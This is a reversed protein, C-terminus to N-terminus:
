VHQTDYIEFLQEGVAKTLDLVGTMKIPMIAPDENEDAPFDINIGNEATAKFVTIRFINGSADTNTFRCVQATLTVLGGTKLTRSAAPTYTYDVLVTVGSAIGGRTITVSAPAVETAVAEVIVIKADTATAVTKVGNNAAITFGAILIHDGPALVTAFDSSVDNYSSDGIAASIDAAATVIATPYARAVWTHGNADVGVIYDVDRVLTVTGAANTVVIATVETLAANFHELETSSTGTLVAIEDVVNVPAGAVPAVTHIGAFFKELIDLNIEMLNGSLSAKHNRIGVVIEGANDSMVRIKDWVEEFIGDRIAGVNVLTGITAGVEFKASGFRITTAEQVTTQPM